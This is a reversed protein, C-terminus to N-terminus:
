DTKNLLFLNIGTETLLLPIFEMTLLKIHAVDAYIEVYSPGTCVSIFDKRCHKTNLILVFCISAPLCIYPCSRQTIRESEALFAYIVFMIMSKFIFGLASRQEECYRRCPTTINVQDDRTDSFNGLPLATHSILWGCPASILLRWNHM